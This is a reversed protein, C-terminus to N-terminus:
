LIVPTPPRGSTTMIPLSENNVFEDQFTHRIIQERRFELIFYLSPIGFFYASKTPHLLSFTANILPQINKFHREITLKFM